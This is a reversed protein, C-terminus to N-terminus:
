AGPRSPTTGAASPPGAAAPGASRDRRLSTRRLGILALASVLLLGIAALAAIAWASWGHHPATSSGLWRRELQQWDQRSMNRWANGMMWSWDGSRMMQGWGDQGYSGGMMGSGMMGGNGATGTAGCGAFRAGMRQHMLGEFRDGMAARMRDNMAEHAVTSGLMRGMVYEGVHDFDEASLDKCTKAGSKLQAVLDRGQRQEDAVSALATTPVILLLALLVVATRIAM